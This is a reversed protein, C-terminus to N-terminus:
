RPRSTRCACASTARRRATSTCASSPSASSLNTDADAVGPLTKLKALLTESYKALQDLDPGGICFQIEANNGPRQLGRGAPGARAPEAGRVAAPDRTRVEGMVAFQDAKREGVPALKVYISGLNLTNQPDAGITVLTYKVGPIERM